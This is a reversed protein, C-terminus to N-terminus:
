GRPWWQEIREQLRKVQEPYMEARNITEHPDALLDYLQPQLPRSGHVNRYRNVQGDAHLLLKWRGEICWTNLLSKTPAHIDAIDHAFAEGFIAERAPLQNRCVDLLNQGPLTAPVDAGCAALITPVLDISSTPQQMTRPRIQGPWRLLIPTRVGGEYPTQKSRPAFGQKWDAPADTQPTRQIWGNDTVFVVLTNDSKGHDDLYDLLEGCTEDFWECMAYYRALQIPRDPKVYKELLRQPPNHPSHPLFPAYWVLFPKDGASEIFDFVPKLGERGIKLGEDGHRGGRKPDGHTMGDTFGGRRYNGEWWKGSQFSVYGRDALLKPLTPLDDIKSILENCEALYEPNSRKPQAFRAPTPDNGTVGHQHAYLGTILTMLSPRCLATPVYGRPFRASQAALQDLHPTEIVPHGMFGFDTWAQDDSIIYLVNPPSKAGTGSATGREKPQAKSPSETKPRAKPRAKPKPRAPKPWRSNRSATRAAM